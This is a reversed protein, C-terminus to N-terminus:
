RETKPDKYEGGYSAVIRPHERAGMQARPDNKQVEDVIQPNESPSVNPTYAQDFVSQCGSLLVALASAAVITRLRGASAGLPFVRPAARATRTRREMMEQGAVPM